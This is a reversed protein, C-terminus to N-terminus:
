GSPDVREGGDGTGTEEPCYRVGRLTDGVFLLECVRRGRGDHFPRREGGVYWRLRVEESAPFRRWFGGGTVGEREPNTLAAVHRMQMGPAFVGELVAERLAEPEEPHDAVWAQREATGTIDQLSGGPDNPLRVSAGSACGAAALLVALSM